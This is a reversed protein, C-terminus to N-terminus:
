YRLGLWYVQYHPELNIHQKEHWELGYKQNNTTEESYKNSEKNESNKSDLLISLLSIFSEILLLDGRSVIDILLNLKFDILINRTLYSSVTKYLEKILSGYQKKNFIKSIKKQTDTPSFLSYKVGKIEVDKKIGYKIKNEEEENEEKNLEKEFEEKKENLEKENIINNYMNEKLIEKKINITNKPENENKKNEEKKEQNDNNNSNDKKQEDKQEEILEKNTEKEKNEENDLKNTNNLENSKENNNNQLNNTEDLLFISLIENKLFVKKNNDNLNKGKNKDEILLLLNLSDIKVDFMSTKFTFLIIEFLEENKDFIKVFKTILRIISKKLCPSIDVSLLYFLFNLNNNENNTKEDLKKQFEYKKKFIIEFLKEIPEIRNSLEPDMISYNGNFYQAHEQCCFKYNKDKDYNLLIKILKIIDIEFYNQEAKM